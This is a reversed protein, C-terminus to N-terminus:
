PLGSGPCHCALRTIFLEVYEADGMDAAHTGLILVVVQDAREVLAHLDVARANGFGLQLRRFRLTERKERHDSVAHHHRRHPVPRV